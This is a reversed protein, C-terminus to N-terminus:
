FYRAVLAAEEDSVLENLKSGKSNYVIELQWLALAKWSKDISYKTISGQVKQLANSRQKSHTNTWSADFEASVKAMSKDNGITVGVKFGLTHAFSDIEGETNTVGSSKNYDIETAKIGTLNMRKICKWAYNVHIPKPSSSVTIATIYYGTGQAQVAIENQISNGNLHESSVHFEITSKDDTTAAVSQDIFKGNIVLYYNAMFEPTDSMAWGDISITLMENIPNPIKFFVAQGRKCRWVSEGVIDGECKIYQLQSDNSEVQTKPTITAPPFSYANFDAKEASFPGYTSNGGSIDEEKLAPPFESVVFGRISFPHDIEHNNSM